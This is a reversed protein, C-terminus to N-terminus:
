YFVQGDPEFGVFTQHGGDFSHGEIYRRAFHEPQDALTARALRHRGLRQHKQIRVVGDVVGFAVDCQVDAFLLHIYKRQGVRLITHNDATTRNGHDKLFRHRTKGGGDGNASLHNFLQQDMRVHVRCPGLFNGDLHQRPHSNRVRRLAEGLIGELEGATHALPRHDGHRKGGFWLQKDGILRCGGEIHGDLGLDDVQHLIQHALKVHRDEEDGVIQTHNGLCRVPHGHHIEASQDLFTVHALHEPFGAVRIRLPEQM